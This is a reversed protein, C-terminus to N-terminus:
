AGAKAQAGAVTKSEERAPAPRALPLTLETWPRPLYVAVSRARPMAARAASPTARRAVSLPWAQQPHALKMCAQAAVSAPARIVM